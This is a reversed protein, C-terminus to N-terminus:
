RPAADMWWRWESRTRRAGAAGPAGNSWRLAAGSTRQRRGRGIDLSVWDELLSSPPPSSPSFVAFTHPACTKIFPSLLTLFSGATGGTRRRGRLRHVRQATDPVPTSACRPSSLQTLGSASLWGPRARIKGEFYSSGTGSTTCWITQFSVFSAYFLRVAFKSLFGHQICIEM